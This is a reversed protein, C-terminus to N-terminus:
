NPTNCSGNSDYIPATNTQTGSTSAQQLNAVVICNVNVEEIADIDGNGEARAAVVNGNGNQNANENEIGLRIEQMKGLM